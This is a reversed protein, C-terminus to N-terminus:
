VKRGVQLPPTWAEIKSVKRHLKVIRAGLPLAMACHGGRFVGRLVYTTCYTSASAFHFLFNTTSSLILLKASRLYRQKPNTLVTRM